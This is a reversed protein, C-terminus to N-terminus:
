VTVHKTLLSVVIKAQFYALGFKVQALRLKVKEENFFLGLLTMNRKRM